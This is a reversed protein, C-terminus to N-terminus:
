GWVRRRWAWVFLAVAATSVAVGATLGPPAFEFAFRGATGPAIAVAPRGSADATVAGATSSWGDAFNENLTVISGSAGSAVGFAVRNPSFEVDFLRAHADAGVLPAGVVATRQVRIGEYCEYPSRNEALARFMPSGPAYPSTELDYSLTSGRRLPELRASLPALSFVKNFLRSNQVVLDATALVCAAAAFVTM